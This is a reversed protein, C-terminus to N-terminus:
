WGGARAPGRTPVAVLGDEATASLARFGADVVEGFVTVPRGGTVALASWGLVDVAAMARGDRDVWTAADDVDVLRLDAVVVGFRDQWPALAATAAVRDLAARWGTAPDPLATAPSLATPDEAFRIRHPPRGPHVAVEVALRAGILHPAPMPNRGAAFDLVVAFGVDDHWLWTRQEAVRGLDARHAGVVTWHGGVRRGALVEEAPRAWGLYTRLEAEDAPDLDDRRQWARVALHWRAVQGLLVDAWDDRGALLGPTRRLRDGMAPMQADVLRGAMADWYAYPRRRAAALGDAVLDALWRDLEAMGGDMLALRKALREAQAAPDPARTAGTATALDPAPRDPSAALGDPAPAGGAMVGGAAHLLLLALGHKCPLKRSPCTCRATPGGLDVTVQYPTSGSGQCRGWLLDDAGGLGSWPGPRALRQAAAFSRQDPALDRVRAATLGDTGM